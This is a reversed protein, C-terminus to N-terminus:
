NYIAIAGGEKKSFLPTSKEASFSIIIFYFLGQPPIPICTASLVSDRFPQLNSDQWPCVHTEGKPLHGTPVCSGGGACITIHAPSM